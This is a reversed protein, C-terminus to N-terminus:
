GMKGSGHSLLEVTLVRRTTETVGFRHDARYGAVWLIGEPAVLLPVQTRRHRPLKIDTFYDQLKKTRGGLGLPQFADGPRWARLLLPFTCRDADFRARADVSQLPGSADGLNIRVRQGTPAWLRTSPVPLPVESPALPSNQAALSRRSEFRLREYERTVQTQDITLTAGSRGHVVCDLVAAVSRFPARKRSRSVQQLLRRVLRRQLALPLAILRQRDVILRESDEELLVEPVHRSTMEELWGDEERLVEAQRCLVDVIAPNLRKLAPLLDRRIRNRLYLPENNSSDVRFSLSRGALYCLIEDRRVGLLPRIFLAERIWPIGALGTVGAGRLMWMVLTEAQDDATHGLAVRDAGILAATDKLAVYRAERAAEQVSGGPKGLLLRRCILPVRMQDCLDSVFRSDEESEAGRLGHNFHVAHLSLSWDHALTALVSLLAVSDPGGSVAVLLRDGPRFLGATRALAAIRCVLRPKAQHM